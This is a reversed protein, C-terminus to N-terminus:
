EDNEQENTIKLDKLRFLFQEIDREAVQEAVDFDDGLLKLLREPLEGDIIKRLLFTGTQNLSYTNGTRSDFLFGNESLALNEFM